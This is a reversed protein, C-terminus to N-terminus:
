QQKNDIIQGPAALQADQSHVLQAQQDDTMLQACPAADETRTMAILCRTAEASWGDQECRQRILNRLGDATETPPTESAPLRALMTAVLHDAARACPEPPRVVPAPPEAAHCATILAAIAVARMARM